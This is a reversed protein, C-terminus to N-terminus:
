HLFLSLLEVRGRYLARLGVSRLILRKPLFVTLRSNLGCLAMSKGCAGAPNTWSRGVTSGLPVNVEAHRGWSRQSGKKARSTPPLVPVIGEHVHPRGLPVLVEALSGSLLWICAWGGHM